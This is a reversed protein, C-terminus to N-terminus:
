EIINAQKIVTESITTISKIDAAVPALERAKILSM